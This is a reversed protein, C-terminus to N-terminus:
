KLNGRATESVIRDCTRFANAQITLTPNLGGSTVFVSADVIFLNRVDHSCGWKDVVSSAPDNGMRCTGMQHNHLKRVEPEPVYVATAGAAEYIERSREGLFKALRVDNAHNTHTIRAVPLGYCDKVEPDLDVANNEVPLSEGTCHSHLYHGWTERMSQKHELGWRTGHIPRLALEIPDGGHARPHIFGGRIFGRRSDTQYFDHLVRTSSTGKQGEVLEPFVAVVTVGPSHLMLNKGVLGSGNCLGRPFRSSESLLLLRATEVGGAALVVFRSPQFQEVGDADFYTVGAARGRADLTIERALSLPRIQCRGSALAKPLLAEMTSSKAGVPCGYGSCTGKSICGPRGDYPESLIALPTPFPHLGLKRGGKELIAGPGNRAAPPVPYDRKRPPDFPNSWGKGSVGITWEAKEYYPEMEEYTIPWDEISTGAVPGDTSRVRFDSEHFRWSLGSYHITGGGVCMANSFTQVRDSLLEAPMSADPRWTRPELDVTPWFFNRRKYVLEDGLAFDDRSYWPGRELIVASMGAECLEKAAVLGSAGGGVVCVDVTDHKPM